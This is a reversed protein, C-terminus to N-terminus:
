RGPNHPFIGFGSRRGNVKSGHGSIEEFQYIFSTSVASKLDLGVGIGDLLFHFLCELGEKALPKRQSAGGPSIAANMRQLIIEM